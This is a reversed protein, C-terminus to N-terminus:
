AGYLVEVVYSEIAANDGSNALEITATIDAAATTDIASTVLTSSAGAGFGGQGESNNGVQSNASNRNAIELQDRRSTVTTHVSSFFATGGFKIRMIKNNANNNNSWLITIRLRGNPGMAGAPVTVTLKTTETTNGTHQLQTSGKALVRWLGLGEVTISGAADRAITTDTAAGLEITSFRVANTFNLGTLGQLYTAIASILGKKTTSSQVLPFTETGDLASAASLASIKSSM